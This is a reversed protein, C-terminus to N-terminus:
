IRRVAHAMVGGIFGTVLSALTGPLLLSQPVDNLTASVGIGILACLGGAIGGATMAGGWGFSRRAALFGALASLGMGGIAYWDQIAPNGHGALVMVLQLGTGVVLGALLWKRDM